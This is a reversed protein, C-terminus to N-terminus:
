QKSLDIELTGLKLQRAATWTFSDHEPPSTYFLRGSSAEFVEVWSTGGNTVVVGVLIGDPSWRPSSFARYNFEISGLPLRSEVRLSGDSSNAPFVWLGDAATVALRRGDPSWSPDCAGIGAHIRRLNVGEGVWVGSGRIKKRGQRVPAEGTAACLALLSGHRDQNILAVAGSPLAAQALGFSWSSVAVWLAVTSDITTVRM